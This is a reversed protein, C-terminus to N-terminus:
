DMMCGSILVFEGGALKSGSGCERCRRAEAYGCGGIITSGNERRFIDNLFRKEVKM